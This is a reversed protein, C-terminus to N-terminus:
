CAALASPAGSRAACRREWGSVEGAAHRLNSYFIKVGKANVTHQECSSSESVAAEGGGDGSGSGTAVREPSATGGSDSHISSISNSSSAARCLASRESLAV